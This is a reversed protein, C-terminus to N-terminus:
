GAGGGFAFEAGEFLGLIRCCSLQNDVHKPFLSVFHVQFYTFQWSSSGSSDSGDGKLM